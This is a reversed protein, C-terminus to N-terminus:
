PWDPGDVMVHLAHGLENIAEDVADCEGTTHPHEHMDALLNHLDREGAEALWYQKREGPPMALYEAPTM